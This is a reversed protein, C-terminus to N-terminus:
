ITFQMAHINNLYNVQNYLAQVIAKVDEPSTPDDWAFPLDCLKSRALARTSTYDTSLSM